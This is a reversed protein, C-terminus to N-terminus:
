VSSTVMCLTDVYVSSICVSYVYLFSTVMHMCLCQSCVFFVFVTVCAFLIHGYLFIRCMCLTVVSLCQSWVFVIHRMCLCHSWVCVSQGYLFIHCMRLTDGCVFVKVMCFYTVCVCLTVVCLRQSWVFIHSVYVFLTVVCVSHGYLFLAVTFFCQPVGVTFVTDACLDMVHNYVIFRIDM